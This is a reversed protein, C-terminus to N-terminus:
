AHPTGRDARGRGGAVRPDRGRDPHPRRHLVRGGRGDPARRPGPGRHPAVPRAPGAQGRRVRAQRRAHGVLYGGGTDPGVELQRVTAKIWSTENTPRSTMRPPWGAPRAPPPRPAARGTRRERPGSGPPGPGGP